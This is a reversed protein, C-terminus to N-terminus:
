DNQNKGELYDRLYEFALGLDGNEAVTAEKLMNSHGMNDIEPIVYTLFQRAFSESADRPLENPLNDIAMVHISGPSYAPVESETNPDYGYIPDAITSPRLTSPISSIPAIDCTIDAITQIRYDDAKMDEISFFQPSRNDWYVGNIMIDSCTTYPHFISEYQDPNKYFDQTDYSGDSKRAVYDPCSLQTFIGTMNPNSLYDAPPIPVYGMDKLVQAAGQGVRGTGTLVIRTDLTELSEYHSKVEAYNKYKYMRKLDLEGHSHTYIANHAGVMGAFVGFAIVRNGKQNKLAEYDILRINKSVIEKLLSQNYPQEKITHSFFFYTKNPLLANEPVEKVGILIDCHSMDNCVKIGESIYEEDSFCRDSCSEVCVDMYPYKDLITRAVVPSIAVRTDPPCKREKIIGIRTMHM